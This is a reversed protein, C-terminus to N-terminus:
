VKEKSKSISQKKMYSYVDKYQIERLLDVYYVIKSIKMKLDEYKVYIYMVMITNSCELKM